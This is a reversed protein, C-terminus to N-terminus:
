SHFDNGQPPRLAVRPLADDLSAVVFDRLDVGRRSRLQALPIRLVEGEQHASERATGLDQVESATRPHGDRTRERLAVLDDPDVAGRLLDIERPPAYGLHGEPPSVHRPDPEWRRREVHDAGEVRNEMNRPFFLAAEETPKMAPESGPAQEQDRQPRVFPHARVFVPEETRGHEPGLKIWSRRPFNM